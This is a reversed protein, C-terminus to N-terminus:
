PITEGDDDGGQAEPVPEEPDTGAAHEEGTGPGPAGTQEPGEPAEETAPAVAEQEPPAAVAPQPTATAATDAGWRPLRVKLPPPVPALLLVLAGALAAYPGISMGNLMSTWSGGVDLTFRAAQVMVAATLVVALSAAIQRLPWGWRVSAAALGTLGLVALVIGVSLLSEPAELDWAVAVPVRFGFTSSYVDGLWPLVASVILLLGGLTSPWREGAGRAPRPARGIAPVAPM